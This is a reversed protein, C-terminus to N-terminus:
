PPPPPALLPSLAAIAEDPTAVVLQRALAEARAFGKALVQELLAHLPAYFGAVDIVVIPKGFVGLQASTLVEFYEDLTGLGGPLVVFADAEALMLAKRSQLDATIVVEEKATMPPELHKLFDPLIGKVPAGGDRAARAVEGMLGVDGGGFVLGFGNAAILQGLRKAAAAYAPDAGHSSGCFVCVAPKKGQREPSKTM